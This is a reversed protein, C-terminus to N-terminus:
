NADSDGTSPVWDCNTTDVAYTTIRTQVVFQSDVFRTLIRLSDGMVRVAPLVDSELPLEGDVCASGLSSKVVSIYARFNGFVQGSTTRPRAVVQDADMHVVVIASDTTRGLGAVASGVPEFRNAGRKAQRRASEEFIDSTPGRRRIRPLLMRGLTEGRSSVRFLHRQTPLLALFGDGDQIVEPRGHSLVTYPDRRMEAPVSGALGIQKTDLHWEGLISDSGWVGFVIDRDRSIWNAGVDAVPSTITELFDGADSTFSTIRRNRLDIVSVASDNSTFNLTRPGDLEGPGAGRKGAEFLIGGAPNLVLLRHNVLDSIAIRGDRAVAFQLYEGLPTVSDEAVKVSSGRLLTPGRPQLASDRACAISTVLLITTLLGIGGAQVRCALRFTNSLVSNVSLLSLESSKWQLRLPLLVSSRRVDAGMAM